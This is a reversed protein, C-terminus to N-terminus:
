DEETFILIQSYIFGYFATKDKIPRRYIELRKDNTDVIWYDKIKYKAYLSLKELEIMACLRM